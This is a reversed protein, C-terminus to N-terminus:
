FNFPKVDPQIKSQQLLKYEVDPKSVTAFVWAEIQSQTLQEFPVYHAPDIPPSPALGTEKYIKSTDSDNYGMCMWNIYVVVNQLNDVTEVVAPGYSWEYRM